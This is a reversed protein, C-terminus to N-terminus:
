EIHSSNYIQEDSRNRQCQQIMKFSVDSLRSILLCSVLHVTLNMEFSEFIWKGDQQVCIIKIERSFNNVLSVVTAPLWTWYVSCVGQGTVFLTGNREEYHFPGLITVDSSKRLLSLGLSRRYGPLNLLGTTIIRSLRPVGQPYSEQSQMSWNWFCSCHIYTVSGEQLREGYFHRGVDEGESVPTESRHPSM